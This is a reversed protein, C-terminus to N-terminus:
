LFQTTNQTSEFANETFSEWKHTLHIEKHRSNGVIKLHGLLFPGSLLMNWSLGELVYVRLGAVRNLKLRM